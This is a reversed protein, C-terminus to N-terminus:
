DAAKIRPRAGPALEEVVEGFLVKVTRTKGGEVDVKFQARDSGDALRLTRDPLEVALLGPPERDLGLRASGSSWVMTRPRESLESGPPLQFQQPHEPERTRTFWVLLAVGGAVFVVVLAFLLRRMPTGAAYGALRGGFEGKPPDPLLEDDRERVPPPAPAQWAELRLRRPEDVHIPGSLRPPLDTDLSTPDTSGATLANEPAAPDIGLVLAPDRDDAPMTLLYAV